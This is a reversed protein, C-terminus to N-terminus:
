DAIEATLQALVGGLKGLVAGHAALDYDDALGRPDRYAINTTGEQSWILMRLPLDLGARPDAQILETGTAPSGFVLVIEDNLELGAGRAGAAHDITAFLTIGRRELAAILLKVTAAVDRAAQTVVLEGSM